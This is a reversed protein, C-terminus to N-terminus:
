RTHFIRHRVKDGPMIGLEQARGGPIELVGRIPGGAPIPTEDLPIAERHVNIIRGDKDIFLLDLPILTNKMWFSVNYETEKFDFLMGASPALSKRFMLGRNRTAETDVFEVSFHSVKGKADVIELPEVHVRSASTAHRASAPASVCGAMILATLAAALVRLASVRRFM